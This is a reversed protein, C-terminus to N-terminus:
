AATSSTSASVAPAGLWETHAPLAEGKMVLTLPGVKAFDGIHTDYLVTAYWGVHVGKGLKVRGVKMVRDEYLHTQLCGTPNLTCYDGIEVCDFETLDTLEMCVGKGIKTGYLRLVWPLFPTGRLFEIAATGAVQRHAACLGCDLPCGLKVPRQPHAPKIPAVDFRELGEFWNVDSCVLAEIQGHEPCSRSLYVAGDRKFVEGPLLKSCFPCLTTTSYYARRTPTTTISRM